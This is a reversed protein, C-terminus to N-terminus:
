VAVNVTCNSGVSAPVAVPVSVMLLLEEVPVVVTMPRLPVPTGTNVPSVQVLLEIDPVPVSLQVTDNFAAAADPPNATLRALLLVATATGDETLTAAPAPLAVKVAVTVETLVACVTVSVAEAPPVDFVKARCSPEDTGVIVTLLELKVKPLTLTLEAVVWVMVSVEVPEEASVTLEAVRAPLPNVTEPAVKGSVSFGLWVAVSVTCNAGVEAPARLPVSVMLLLEEEPAEVMMLRLPVPTGTSLANLQVLPEIVPAPVSLQVTVNFVAAAEPPNATLRALLLVATVTGAETLTAAPAFVAPNVAVTDETLVACVTVRVALAPATV